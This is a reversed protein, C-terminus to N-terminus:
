DPLRAPFPDSGDPMNGWDDLRDDLDEHEFDIGLAELGDRLPCSHTNWVREGDKYVAVWDDATRIQIRM